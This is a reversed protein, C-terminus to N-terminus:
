RGDTTKRRVLRPSWYILRSVTGVYFFGKRNRPKALERRTAKQRDGYQPRPMWTGEEDEEEEMRDGPKCIIIVMDSHGIAPRRGNWRGICVIIPVNIKNNNITAATYPPRVAADRM